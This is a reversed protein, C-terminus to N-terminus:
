VVNTSYSLQQSLICVVVAAEVVVVSAVAEPAASQLRTLVFPAVMSGPSTLEM